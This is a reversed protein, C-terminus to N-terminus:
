VIRCSRCHTVFSVHAAVAGIRGIRFPRAPRMDCHLEDDIILFAAFIADQVAVLSRLGEQGLDDAGRGPRALAVPVHFRDVFIARAGAEPSQQAQEGLGLHRDGAVADGCRQRARGVLDRRHLLGAPLNGRVPQSPDVVAVMRRFVFAAVHVLCDPQM